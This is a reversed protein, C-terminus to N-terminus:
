LESLIFWMYDAEDNFVLNMAGARISIKREYTENWEWVWSRDVWSSQPHEACSVAKLLRERFWEPQENKDSPIKYLYM